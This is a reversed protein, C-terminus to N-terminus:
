RLTAGTLKKGKKQCHFLLTAAIVLLLMSSPEPIPPAANWALGYSEQDASHDGADFVLGLFTVRLGYTAAEAIEIRLFEMSNYVTVSEAVLQFFDGGEVKWVQLNLDAFYDNSSFPETEDAPLGLYSRGAFWNLSVTLSSGDEFDETFFYDISEGVGISGFDWGSGTINGGRTELNRTESLLYIDATTELNLRGAGAAADVAMLTRVVGDELIQGNDWGATETAGAMLVSRIVRADTAGDVGQLNFPSNGDDAVQRLLSIGGAVMPSSFSSGDMNFFYLDTPSPDIPLGIGASGEWAGISGSNGLYASLFLFEGPASIHVGSRVGQLLEDTVPNYFDVVGRSSFSSPTLFDSGGLSGVTIGNFGSAPSGVPAAASNGASVVLATEPNERAMGDLAVAIPSNAAPDVGGWSSNIVDARRGGIGEFMPQYTSLISIDSVAFAGLSETSYATAIAGSWIEALPAIGIGALTFEGVDALYGSGAMVHGVMTAHFDFENLAGDGTLFLGVAPTAGPRIFVEHDSWVHGAEVNAVIRGQGGYGSDFFLDWGVISNVFTLSVFEGDIFEGSFVDSEKTANARGLVSLFLMTLLLFRM